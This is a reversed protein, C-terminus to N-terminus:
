WPYAFMMTLEGGEAGNALDARYVAGSAAVLRLGVGYSSRKQKWLGSSKESVSGVEGFFAVQMGTRVDKWFLYDFPKVEQKFNLRYEVGFFASHGGNFRGEPYSRLRDKGGLSASSGNTRMNIFTDVLKQESQLCSTDTPNCNFGLEQRIDAPNTNGMSTVHADSQFYNLVLTDAELMPMYLSLNRSLVYFSPDNTTSKPQNQYQFNFAIGKHPDMYDDTLDVSLGLADKTDKGHYDLATILNGQFDRIAKVGFENDARQYLFNLRRDFFTLNFDAVKNRALSIDLLTFENKSTGEMGRVDYQNIQARKIDQYYLKVFLRQSVIPVEDFQLIYGGADGAVYMALIDTTELVNSFNGMLFFGSGIGPYSYPLPVVLHAHSDPFQSKRREPFIIDAQASVSSFLLVFTLGWSLLSPTGMQSERRLKRHTVAFKGSALAVALIMLFFETMSSTVKEMQAEWRLMQTYKVKLNESFCSGSSGGKIQFSNRHYIGNAKETKQMDNMM